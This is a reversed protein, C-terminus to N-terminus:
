RKRIRAGTRATKSRDPPPTDSEISDPASDSRADRAVGGPPPAGDFFGTPPQYTGPVYRSGWRVLERLIPELDLGMPTLVYEDRPPHEQYRRRAVIGAAELRALRDTLINTSIAEGSGLLDAFRRKDFWLLDRIVVLTWRDGLVDLASAIPCPSREPCLAGKVPPAADSRRPTTRRRTV